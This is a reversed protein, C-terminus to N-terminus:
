SFKRGRFLSTSRSFLIRSLSCFGSSFVRAYMPSRSVIIRRCGGVPFNIRLVYTQDVSSSGSRVSSSSSTIVSPCRWRVHWGAAFLAVCSFLVASIVLVYSWLIPHQLVGFSKQEYQPVVPVVVILHVHLGMDPFPLLTPAATSASVSSVVFRRWPILGPCM